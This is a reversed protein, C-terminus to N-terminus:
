HFDLNKSGAAKQTAQRSMLKARIETAAVPFLGTDAADLTTYLNESVTISNLVCETQIDSNCSNNFQPLHVPTVTYVRHYNDETVLKVNNNEFEGGM